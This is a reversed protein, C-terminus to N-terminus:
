NRAKMFNINLVLYIFAQFVQLVNDFNGHPNQPVTGNTSKIIALSNLVISQLEDHSNHCDSLSLTLCHHNDAQILICHRWPWRVTDARLLCDFVQQSFLEEALPIHSGYTETYDIFEM